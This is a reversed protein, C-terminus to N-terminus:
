MPLTKPQMAIQAKLLHARAIGIEAAADADGDFGRLMCAIADKFHDQASRMHMMSLQRQALQENRPIM